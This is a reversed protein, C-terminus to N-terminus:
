HDAADDGHAESGRLREPYQGTDVYRQKEDRTWGAFEGEGAGTSHDVEVRNRILGHVQALLEYGKLADRYGNKSGRGEAKRAIREISVVIRSRMEDRQEPTERVLRRIVHYAQTALAEIRDIGIGWAEALERHSMGTVWMGNVMDEVIVDIRRETLTRGEEDELERRRKTGLPRRRANGALSALHERRKRAAERAAAAAPNEGAPPPQRNRAM